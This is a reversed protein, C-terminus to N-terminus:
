DVSPEPLYTVIRLRAPRYLELDFTTYRYRGQHAVRLEKLWSHPWAVNHLPWWERFEPSAASLEEIRALWAPDEVFGVSDSRFHAMTCRAVEEWRTFLERFELTAFCMWVYNRRELPIKSFGFLADASANWALVNWNLDLVYSPNPNMSELILCISPLALELEGGELLPATSGALEYLHSREQPALCLARSLGELTETSLNVERAQEIWTYWAVSIGAAEAVEERRLGKVRRRGGSRTPTLAERRSRVFNALEQRRTTTVTGPDAIVPQAQRNTASYAIDIM